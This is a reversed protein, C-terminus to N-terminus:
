KRDFFKWLDNITKCKRIEGLEEIPLKELYDRVFEETHPLKCDSCDWIKGRSLNEHYFWKGYRSNINCGGEDISKDYWPCVCFLCILQYDDMDKHCRNGNYCPCADPDKKKRNILRNEEIITNILKNKNM